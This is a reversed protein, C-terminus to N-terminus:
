EQQNIFWFVFEKNQLWLWPILKSEFTAELLTMVNSIKEIEPENTLFSFLKVLFVQLPFFHSLILLALIIGYGITKHCHAKLSDSANFVRLAQCMGPFLFVFFLTFYGFYEDKEFCNYTYIVEENSEIDGIIKRTREIWTFNTVFTDNRNNVYKTYIDGNLYLQGQIYILELIGVLLLM